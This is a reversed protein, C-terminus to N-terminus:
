VQNDALAHPCTHSHLFPQQGCLVHARGTLADSSQICNLPPMSTTSLIVTRHPHPYPHMQPNCGFFYSICVHRIFHHLNPSDPTPRSVPVPEFRQNSTPTSSVFSLCRAGPADPTLDHYLPVALDALGHTNLGGMLMFARIYYQLLLGLPM